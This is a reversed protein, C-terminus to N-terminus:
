VRLMELLVLAVALKVIGIELRARTEDRQGSLLAETEIGSRNRIQHMPGVDDVAGEIRIRLGGDFHFSWGHLQGHHNLRGRIM